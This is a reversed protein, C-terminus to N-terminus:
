VGSINLKGAYVSPSGFTGDGSPTDFRLDSGVQVIDRIMEYFNGSVVMQDVPSGIKGGIIEFGGASLSFDGTVANVGAHLGELKTILIGDGAMDLIQDFSVRSPQVAFLGCGTTIPGTLGRKFGNGTSDVGDKEASKLNYLFTKLVGNEIVAKNKAAVGESDFPKSGVCGDIYGDDRLTLVDSAIKQGLKGGLLSFGKQVDEAFFNSAFSAFIDAATENNFVVETNATAAKSAGLQALGKEVATRAVNDPSFSELDSGAWSEFGVKPEGGESQVRVMAVAFAGNSRHSVDLGLSNAIVIEGEFTGMVALDVSVVRKDYELAATELHKALACKESTEAASLKENFSNVVPYEADGAYLPETDKDEIVAANARAADLLYEISDEAVKETSAYGMKGGYTGRFSVGSSHASKFEEIEGGFVKVQFSDTSPAYMEFSDFGAGRAKEFLLSKFDQINM